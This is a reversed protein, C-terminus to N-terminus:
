EVHYLAPQLLVMQLAPEMDQRKYVDVRELVIDSLRNKEKESDM